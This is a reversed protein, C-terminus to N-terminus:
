QFVTFDFAEITGRQSINLNLDKQYGSSKGSTTINIINSPVQSSGFDIRYELFPIKKRVSSPLCSPSNSQCSVLDNIISFKLFCKYNGSNCNNTYFTQFNQATDDLLFGNKLPPNFAKWVNCLELSSCINAKTIRNGPSSNLVDTTYSLQWNIINKDTFTADDFIEYTSSSQDFDPVRFYVYVSSLNMGVPLYVQIPKGASIISWNWSPDYPSNWKWAIPHTNSLTSVSYSYWSKTAPLAQNPQDWINGAKVAYIAQEVGSYANYFSLTSNEVGEVNRMFPVIYELIYFATLTFILTVGIAFIIGFWTTNKKM